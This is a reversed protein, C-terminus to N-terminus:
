DAAEDNSAFFNEPLSVELAKPGGQAADRTRFELAVMDYDTHQCDSPVAATTISRVGTKKATRVPIGPPTLTAEIRMDGKLNETGWLIKVDAGDAIKLRKFVNAGIRIVYMRTGDDKGGKPRPKKRSSLYVKDPDVKYATLKEIEEWPM